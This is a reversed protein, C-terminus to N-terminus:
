LACFNSRDLIDSIFLYPVCYYLPCLRGPFRLGVLIAQVVQLQIAVMALSIM